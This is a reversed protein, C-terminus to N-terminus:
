RERIADIPRKSAIRKVPIYSAIFAVLISVALLLAIQRVGFDLVTILIGVENRLIHNIVATVVGVGISSLVFNIIAIVFSESFFIRFVDNSRSGIARLIGIEQKKYSISTAIFNSLMLAAFLAFGIGIYLLYRSFVKLFDNVMDLEYTVSNHIPYRLEESDEYCFAVLRQVDDREEPMAGVAFTYPGTGDKSYTECMEGGTIVTSSYSTSNEDITVYGVIKVTEAESGNGMLMVNECDKLLKGYNLSGDELTYTSDENWYYVSDTTVIIENERLETREGDIWNILKPDVKDLTTIYYPDINIGNDSYMYIYGNTIQYIDLRQELMRDLHGEGLMATASLSYEVATSFESYLAFDVMKEADTKSTEKVTLSLYRELDFKTDLIATVTYEKSGILIKKNILDNYSSITEYVAAIEGKENEKFTKGDTYGAKKFVEYVYESVAIEDKQGDPLTGALLKFGLSKIKEDTIESFGNFEPLFLSYDTESLKVQPDIHNAYSLETDKPVYVGQLDIGSGQEIKKIDAKDLTYGYDRWYSDIGQEVLKAKGVSAYQVGTDLISNTCTKVHNYSGFTDAVGFLGFAICSLIITVALRIKKYKLSSAGIRFATKMPLRSKILKFGTTNQTIKSQDTEKFRASLKKTGVELQAGLGLRDIYENIRICDEETLHYEAPIGIKTGEFSLGNEETIQMSTDPEVDSIVVGDSLEIIRDAYQEAFDRDHSVVIVLKSRSLKKLTDFVQKGTNSDLAGTPEDAMIIDPNKVLARAIAVRQKQGGSLENPKRDGYGELDVEKLIENIQKDTAKRNQLQIALAINAGVTFQDLVNYEQFIFGVYTNRYSDFHKQSFSKSSVGRILIDGCDYRDLGGLINLLTSKGSGSKGLLFVMGTQPFKLNIDHLATVPVGKKPKYVKSLNRTELM